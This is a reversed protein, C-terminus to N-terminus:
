LHGTSAQSAMMGVVILLLIGLNIVLGICGTVLGVMSHTKGRIAPNANYAALGKRSKIIAFPVLPAGLVPMMCCIGLYYGWLSDPNNTPIMSPAPSYAPTAGIRMAAALDPLQGATTQVGEPTIIPAQAPLQGSSAWQQLQALDVDQRSGDPGILVYSNM